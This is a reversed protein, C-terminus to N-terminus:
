RPCHGASRLSLMASTTNQLAICPAIMNNENTSRVVLYNMPNQVSESAGMERHSLYVHSSVAELVMSVLNEQVARKKFYRRGSNARVHFCLQERRGHQPQAADSMRSNEECDTSCIETQFQWEGLPRPNILTDYRTARQCCLGSISSNAPAEWGGALRGM